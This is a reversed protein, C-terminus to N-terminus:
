QTPNVIKASNNKTKDLLEQFQGTRKMEKLVVSLAEALKRHRQKNLYVHL